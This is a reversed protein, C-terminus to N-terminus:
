LRPIRLEVMVAHVLSTKCSTGSRIPEPTDRGVTDPAARREPHEKRRERRQRLSSRVGPLEMVPRSFRENRGVTCRLLLLTTIIPFVERGHGGTKM